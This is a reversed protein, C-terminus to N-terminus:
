KLVIVSPVAENIVVRDIFPLEETNFLHESTVGTSHANATIATRRM